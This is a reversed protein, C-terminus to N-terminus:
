SGGFIIDGATIRKLTGTEVRLLLAGDADMGEIVGDLPEGGLRVSAPQGLGHARSLWAARLPEFGEGEWVSLWQAFAEDLAELAADPTPRVGHAGFTTAPYPTDTPADALNAGVGIALWLGGAPAAGSEVLVGCAKMGGILVDNPWKLTVASPPVFAAALDAAALAAVFAAQAAQMPPKQTTILLTAALNQSAGQWVRGQRGRGATQRRATLWMPGREGALARRAAESNTSDIEDFTLVPFTM